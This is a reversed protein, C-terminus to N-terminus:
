AADKVALKTWFEELMKLGLSAKAYKNVIPIQNKWDAHMIAQMESKPIYCFGMSWTNFYRKGAYENVLEMIHTHQKSKLIRQYVKAVSQPSGEFFQFFTTKHCLLVGTVGAELNFARADLLLADVEEASLPKVAASVYAIYQYRM